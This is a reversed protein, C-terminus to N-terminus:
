PALQTHLRIATGARATSRIEVLDCLQHVLWLGRGGPQQHTPRVRGALPNAIHGADRFECVFAGDQTWTRLTGRGGGHRISNTAVETAALLLERLRHGTLDQEAACTTIKARVAALEGRTFELEEQPGCPDALDEFPYPADRLFDDNPLPAGDRRVLPHCREVAQLAATDDGATDYPCLLWWAASDAFALNLLWEHYRLEAVDSATRAQRWASEGIGRLPRGEVAHRAIEDQWVALLRGPNRGPAAADVFTVSKSDPLEARLLAERDRPVSVIVGEQADLAEQIFGLAGGLFDDEGAYPYLEHRFGDQPQEPRRMTTM